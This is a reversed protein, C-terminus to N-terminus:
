TAPAWGALGWVSLRDNVMFRAYPSVTTMTSEISGKDVGPQEFSGEGESVSIAIGALLRNWEADAGLIGTTVNDDIRVDGNDALAEGDFDGVTVRGWAALGPGACESDTALHFASGLLLERGAAAVARPEDGPARGLVQFREPHEM